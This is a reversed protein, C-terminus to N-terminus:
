PMSAAAAIITRITDLAENYQQATHLLMEVMEDGNLLLRIFTGQLGEIDTQMALAHMDRIVQAQQEPAPVAIKELCELLDNRSPDCMHRACMEFFGPLVKTDPQWLAAAEWPQVPAARARLGRGRATAARVVTAPGRMAPGRMSCLTTMMSQERQSRNRSCHTCAM